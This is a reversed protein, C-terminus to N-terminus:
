NLKFFNIRSMNSNYRAYVENAYGLDIVRQMATWHIKWMLPEGGCWYIERVQKTEIADIFEEVVQKDQFTKIQERLPSAMWPSEEKKWTNHKRSEAEWSSSLMDGCMRCKFNCVNNLRIHIQKIGQRENTKRHSKINNAEADWCYECQKPKENNMLQNKLTKLKQSFFYQKISSGMFFRNSPMVCCPTVNGNEEIHLENWPRSCYTSM